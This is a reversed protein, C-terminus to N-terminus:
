KTLGWRKRNADYEDKQVFTPLLYKIVNGRVDYAVDGMRKTQLGIRKYGEENDNSFFMEGKRLEPHNTNYTM